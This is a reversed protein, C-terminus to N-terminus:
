FKQEEPLSQSICFPEHTQANTEPKYKKPTHINFYKPTSVLQFFKVESIHTKLNTTYLWKRGQKQKKIYLIHAILSM